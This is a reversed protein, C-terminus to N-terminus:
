PSWFHVGCEFVDVIPFDATRVALSDDVGVPYAIDLANRYAPETPPEVFDM